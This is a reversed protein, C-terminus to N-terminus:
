QARLATAPDVRTARRVPVLLAVAACGVLLLVALGLALPDFPAVGFLLDRIMRTVLVVGAAGAALGLAMWAGGQRLVLAAIARPSSGLAMRVGFERERATAMAAFMAYVGVSALLLALAGFATMLVVPLRRGALGEGVVERMPAARTVPLGPDLAALEREAPRVLAVPDGATRVLFTALPWADQRQTRYAMPEADVRAPDNRVDGVIGVVEMLPAEPDPGMRIRAGLADGAPWFRRAMAESVVVTPPADLHDRADFVRGQRLPIRLTRFYDDCVNAYLVFPQVDGEPYSAGDITFGMRSHVATPVMSVSAVSTVGPLAGLRARFEEMFQRTAEQTPYNSGPLQLSVALLGDPDFGPSAATMALLSRTLLGAGALLSVCLAIQGAVLAGRLGRSRRGESSGRAEGRLAGHNGARGVALAPGVGFAIGTLLAIVATVLVVGGDLSPDAHGPLAPLVLGRALSLGLVALLLGLAGGALALLASETILQRVLRGQGAGIAARVAFEKQRSVARSLLAGALNACAILLVLAASAMLLQLPLRTDGVMAERLSVGLLGIGANADPHERALDAGIAALDRDAALLDTGPSLRGVMGLWHARRVSVPNNLVPALNLPLFFDPEGTPSVFERPLVGVVTRPIGDIRVDSGVAAPDGGLLRQWATHTVVVVQATDVVDEAAFARGRAPAVGLTPFFATDVWTLRTLRPGEEGGLVADQVHSAFVSMRAFSRQRALIDTATGASMVGRENVADDYRGYVRVLGDADAYPLSDILVAKVVGFVAANAGIGLALTVVALLTFVPSRLASRVGYRADQGLDSWWIARRTHRARRRGMAELEARAAAVDGFERRAEARAAAPDMGRKVLERTREELHFAIEEEVEDAVGGVSAPLHFLRRLGPITPM